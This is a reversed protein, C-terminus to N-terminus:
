RRLVRRSSEDPEDGKRGQDRVILPPLYDNADLVIRSITHGRATVVLEGVLLPVRVSGVHDTATLLGRGTVDIAIEALGTDIRPDLGTEGLVLACADLAPAIRLDRGSAPPCRGLLRGGKVSEVEQGRVPLPSLALVVAVTVLATRGRALEGIRGHEEIRLNPVVPPDFPPATRRLQTRHPIPLLLRPLPAPLPRGSRVLLGWRKLEWLLQLSLLARARLLCTDLSGGGGRALGLDLPLPPLRVPCLVLHVRLGGGM